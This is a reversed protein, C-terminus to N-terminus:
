DNGPRIQLLKAELSPVSEENGDLLLPGLSSPLMSLGVSLSLTAVVLSEPGASDFLCVDRM